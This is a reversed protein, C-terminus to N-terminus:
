HLDISEMRDRALLTNGTTNNTVAIDDNNDDEDEDNDNHMLGGMDEADRYESVNDDNDNDDVVSVNSDGGVSIDLDMNHVSETDSKTQLGKYMKFNRSFMPNKTAASHHANGSISMEIDDNDNMGMRMASSSSVSSGRRRGMFDSIGSGNSRDISDSESTNVREMGAGGLFGLRCFRLRGDFFVFADVFGQISPSLFIFLTLLWSFEDVSTEDDAFYFQSPRHVFSLYTCFIFSVFILLKSLVRILLSRKLTSILEDSAPFNRLTTIFYFLVFLNYALILGLPALTFVAAVKSWESDVIFWCVSGGVGGVNGMGENAFLLCFLIPAGWCGVHYWISYNTTYSGQSTTSTGATLSVRRMSSRRSAQVTSSSFLNKVTLYSSHSM